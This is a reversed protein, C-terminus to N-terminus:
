TVNAKLRRNTEQGNTRVTKWWSNKQAALYDQTAALNHRYRLIGDIIVRTEWESHGSNRLADRITSPDAALLGATIGPGPPSGTRPNAPGSPVIQSPPIRHLLGWANLGLSLLLLGILAARM